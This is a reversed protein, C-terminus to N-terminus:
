RRPLCFTRNSRHVNCIGISFFVTQGLIGGDVRLAVVRDQLYSVYKATGKVTLGLVEHEDEQVRFGLFTPIAAYFRCRGAADWSFKERARAQGLSQCPM